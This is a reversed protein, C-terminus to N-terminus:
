SKKQLITLEKMIREQNNLLNYYSRVGWIFIIFLLYFSVFEISRSGDYILIIGSLITLIILVDYLSLMLNDFRTM